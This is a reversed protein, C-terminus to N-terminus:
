ALVPVLLFRSAHVREARVLGAAVARHVTRYGFKLSGRPAVHRAAAIMPLGPNAEVFAQVQLMRPGIRKSM